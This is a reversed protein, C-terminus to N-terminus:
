ELAPPPVPGDDPVPGAVIAQEPLLPSIALDRVATDPLAAHVARVGPRAALARLAGPDGRVLMAAVCACGEGLRTAEAAAIAAPRGPAARSAALRDAAASRLAGTLEAAPRQGPLDRTILATQVRPLPVRLVVKALRVGRVLEAASEPTLYDALQVLAWGPSGGAPLSVAARRLYDAVPEGAEPGLRQAGTVPVSDRGGATWITCGLVVILAALAVWRGRPTM